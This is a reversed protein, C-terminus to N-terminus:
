IGWTHADCAYGQRTWSMIIPVCLEFQGTQRTTCDLWDPREAIDREITWYLREQSMECGYYFYITADLPNDSEAEM